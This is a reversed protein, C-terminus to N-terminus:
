RNWGIKYDYNKSPEQQAKKKALREAPTSGTDPNRSKWRGSPTKEITKGPKKGKQKKVGRQSGTQGHPHMQGGFNLRGGVTSYATQRPADKPTPSLGQMIRSTMALTNPVKTKVDVREWKKTSGEPANRVHKTTRDVYMPTKKKGKVKDEKRMEQILHADELIEEAWEESMNELIILASETDDAFGESMLYEVIEIEEESYQPFVEECLAVFDEDDMEEIIWEAEEYSDAYGEFYLFKLLQHYENINM